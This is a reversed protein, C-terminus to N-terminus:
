ACQGPRGRDPLPGAPKAASFGSRLQWIDNAIQLYEEKPAVAGSGFYKVLEEQVVCCVDEASQCTPLRKVIPAVGPSYEVRAGGYNIDLPDHRLLGALVADYLQDYQTKLNQSGKATNDPPRPM